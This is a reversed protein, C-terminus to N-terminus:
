KYKALFAEVAAANRAHEAICADSAELAKALTRPGGDLKAVRPTFFTAAAERAQPDCTQATAELLDNVDDARGQVGSVLATVVAVAVLALRSRTM